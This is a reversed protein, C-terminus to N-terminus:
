FINQIFVHMIECSRGFSFWSRREETRYIRRYAEIFIFFCLYVFPLTAFEFLFPLQAEMLEMGLIITIYALIVTFRGSWWHIQDPWIPVNTRKIEFMLDAAWGGTSTIVSLSLVSFGFWSHITSFHNGSSMYVAIGFAIFALIIGTVQSMIHLPFWWHYQKLYRAVFIGFTLCFGFSLIMLAGHIYPLTDTSVVAAGGTFFNIRVEDRNSRGHYSPWSSTGHAWIVNQMGNSFMQDAKTDNTILKRTFTFTTTTATQVGSWSYVDNTGGIDTDEVANHGFPASPSSVFDLVFISGNPEFFAVVIDATKMGSELSSTDHWGIGVWPAKVNYQITMIIANDATLLWSAKGIDGLLIEGGQVSLIFILFALEVTGKM